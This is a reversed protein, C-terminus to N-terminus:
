RYRLRRTAAGLPHGGGHSSLWGLDLPPTNRSFKVVGWLAVALPSPALAARLNHRLDREDGRRRPSVAGPGGTAGPTGGGGDGGGGVIVGGAAFPSHGGGTIPDADAEGLVQALTWSGALVTGDVHMCKKGTCRWLVATQGAIFPPMGSRQVRDPRMVHKHKRKAM